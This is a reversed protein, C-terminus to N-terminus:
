GDGLGDGAANNANSYNSWSASSWSASSWSASSWSASSWSASSWSASSWSASSWSASSWSASSWSANASAASTWSGADFVPLSGGTPDPVLFSELALNPNPPAVLKPDLAKQLNVEGVGVSGPAAKKLASATLMLAGKVQDPSWDPHAGLIDAAIGSVVPASFSTGSLELLGGKLANGPFASYLTASKAIPEIMYRGPAGVDPKAFGDLTYGYSTWPANVDDDTGDSNRVDVAGVTIVFPDNAPAYLVGSAQGNSAYNGASTVVVIGAEWLREVARDLPDFMFSSPTSTELSFNAVRIGYKVRNQLIWDAARIVDSTQAHGQADFVDLSVLNATPAAGDYSGPGQDSSAAIQAVFTGHGRGDGTSYGGGMDIQALLRNGFNGSSNDVGSDVVAITAAQQKALPSGWFWKVQAASDWHQPNAYGDSTVQANTTISVVGDTNAVKLLDKGSLSIAFGNISSFQAEISDLFAKADVGKLGQDKAMSRALRDALHDSKDSGDGQVIVDFSQDRNAQAADLLSQDVVAQTKPVHGDKGGAVAAAPFALLGSVLLVLAAGRAGKGWLASARSDGDEKKGWLASGRTSM